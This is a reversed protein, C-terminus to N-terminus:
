LTIVGLPCADVCAGCEICADEDSITAVDGTLEILDLPCVNTCAGCGICSAGDIAIAM